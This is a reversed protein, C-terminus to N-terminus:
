SVVVRGARAEKGHGPVMRRTGAPPRVGEGVVRGRTAASPLRTSSAGRSRTSSRRAGDTTVGEGPGGVPWTPGGATHQPAAQPRDLRPERGADRDDPQLRRAGGGQAGVPGLQQGVLREGGAERLPDAGEGLHEGLMGVGQARGDDAGPLARQHLHVAVLVGLEAGLGVV